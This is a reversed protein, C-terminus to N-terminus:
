NSDAAHSTAHAEVVHKFQIIEMKKIWPVDPSNTSQLWSIYRLGIRREADTLKFYKGGIWRPAETEYYIEYANANTLDRELGFLAIILDDTIMEETMTCLMSNCTTGDKTEGSITPYGHRFRVNKRPFAVGEGEYGLKAQNAQTEPGIGNPFRRFTVYIGKSNDYYCDNWVNALEVHVPVKASRIFPMTKTCELNKKYDTELLKLNPLREPDIEGAEGARIKAQVKELRGEFHVARINRASDMDAASLQVHEFVIGAYRFQTDLTKVIEKATYFGDNLRMQFDHKKGKETWKVTIKDKDNKVSDIMGHEVHLYIGRTYHIFFLEMNTALIWGQGEPSMAEQALVLREGKRMIYGSEHARVATDPAEQEENKKRGFM